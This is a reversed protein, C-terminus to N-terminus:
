PGEHGLGHLARRLVDLGSITAYERIRKRDGPLRLEVATPDASGIALGVYVTGVAVGEEEAPGAVGTFSIGVDSGLAECVGVAMQRAAVDSVVPGPAVGLISFKVDPAYSVVGGRFWGSAGEVGVLRSAVLGGTLSEAVALTLGRRTLENAVAQEMSEDDVGFVVDGLSNTLIARVVREEEDLRSRAAADTDAKVTLRVKLGEIGSALFAVTLDSGDLETMRADLVEALGSESSGWTRLVRSAIVGGSGEIALRERLDPLVGRGFMEELEHPVGPLAYIVKNGVPCILGPATGRRQEIVTAGRPVDAQRRNNEPMDRGRSNFMKEIRTAIQADRELEVGMVAAIAERSIDDQTPGLGGCAIVGDSRALATRLALVIRPLNDGVHQHFQSQVGSAALQEGIWRSNTDAIQGLLLESGIAVVEVRV